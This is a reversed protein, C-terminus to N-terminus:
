AVGADRRGLRRRLFLLAGAVAMGLMAISSPEPVAVAMDAQIQADSIPANYFRLDDILIGYSSGGPVGPPVGAVTGLAGSNNSVLSGVTDYGYAQYKNVGNIFIDTIGLHAGTNTWTFRMAVNYWTGASLTTGAGTVTGSSYSGQWYALQGSTNIGMTVGYDNAGMSLITASNTISQSTPKVWYSFTYVSNAGFVQDTPLFAIGQNGATTGLVLSNNGVGAIPVDSSNAISAYVSGSHSTVVNVPTTGGNFDYASLLVAQAQQLGGAGVLVAAVLLSAFSKFSTKM